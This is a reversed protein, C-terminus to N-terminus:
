SQENKIVIEASSEPFLPEKKILRHSKAFLKKRSTNESTRCRQENSRSYNLFKRGGLTRKDNLMSLNSFQYTM